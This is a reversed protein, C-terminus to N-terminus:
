EKLALSGEVEMGYRSRLTKITDELDRQAERLKREGYKRKVEAICEDWTKDTIENGSKDHIIEFPEKAVGHWRTFDSGSYKAYGSSWEMKGWAVVESTSGDKIEIETTEGWSDSPISDTPLDELAEELTDYWETYDDYSVCCSCRYGNTSTKTLVYSM